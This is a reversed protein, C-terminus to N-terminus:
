GLPSLRPHLRDPASTLWGGSFPSVVFRDVAALRELAEDLDVLDPDPASSVYLADNLRRARGRRAKRVRAFACLRSPRQADIGCRNRFLPTCDHVSASPVHVLSTAEM